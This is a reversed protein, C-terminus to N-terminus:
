GTDHLIASRYARGVRMNIGTKKFLDGDIYLNLAAVVRATCIESTTGIHSPAIVPALASIKIGAGGCIAAFDQINTRIDCNWLVCLYDIEGIVIYKRSQNVRVVVQADGVFFLRLAVIIIEGRNHVAAWYASDM